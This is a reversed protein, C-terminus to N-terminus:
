STQYILYLNSFYYIINLIIQIMILGMIIFGGTNSIFYKYDFIDKYCKLIELNTQSLMTGIEGLSNKYILNNELINNGILNSMLCECIAKLTTLNVGKIQCGNECLTVNPYYLLIRDKLAIDKGEMPTIFHYCIDTYFETSLNFIDINQDTLYILTNIDTSNDIKSILNEQVILTDDKCIDESSLKKGNSPEYMSYSIMKPYSIGDIKKSIIAIM